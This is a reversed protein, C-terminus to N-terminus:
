TAIPPPAEESRQGCIRASVVAARHHARRGDLGGREAGGHRRGLAGAPEVVSASAEAAIAPSTTAVKSGSQAARRAAIRSSSAM